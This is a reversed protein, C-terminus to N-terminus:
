RYDTSDTAIQLVLEVIVWVSTHISDPSDSSDTFQVNMPIFLLQTHTTHEPSHADELACITCKGFLDGRPVNLRDPEFHQIVYKIGKGQFKGYRGRFM